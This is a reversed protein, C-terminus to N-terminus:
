KGYTEDFLRTGLLGLQVQNPTGAFEPHLEFRNREFYQVTYQKGDVPNTETLEESIPFGFVALGGYQQWFALFPGQLNHGTEPFFQAGDIPSAPPEPEHFM